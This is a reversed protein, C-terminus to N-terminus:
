LNSAGGLVRTASRWILPSTGNRNYLLHHATITAAVNPGAALVFDVADATTVHELVVKLEPCQQIIPALHRELFVKEKDFIDIDPSKVEGHVLLLLGEAAMRRLVPLIAEINTVGSDSNTTAGAPYLKCAVVLGTAAAKTIEEPTTNDTLYLTMLPEFDADPPLAGLIQKRYTLAM